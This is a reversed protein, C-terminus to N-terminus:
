ELLFAKILALRSRHTDGRDMFPHAYEPRVETRAGLKKGETVLEASARVPVVTDKEGAVLLIRSADAPLNAAPDYQGPCGFGSIRSPTSDIVARDYQAGAGIANLVVIGGFSIGYLFRRGNGPALFRDAMERYDGVMAKLRRRGESNGYGRYDFIFVEIGADSFGTLSSLLRDSLMANGQAVLLRGVVAGGAATSKLKYGRLIRDDRTKYTIAEANGIHEAREPEAEGALHSWLTFVIPERFSGCVSAEPGRPLLACGTALPLLCTSLLLRFAKM